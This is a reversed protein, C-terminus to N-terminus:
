GLSRSAKAPPNSPSSKAASPVIGWLSDNAAPGGGRPLMMAALRTEPESLDLRRRRVGPTRRERGLLRSCSAARDRALDLYAGVLRAPRAGRGPGVPSKLAIV